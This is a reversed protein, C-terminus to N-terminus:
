RDLRAGRVDDWSRAWAEADALQLVRMLVPSPLRDLTLAASLGDLDLLGAAALRGELLHARLASRGQHYVAAAFGDLGGKTSRRRVREPLLHGLAQRAVARNEGGDVWMWAPIRLCLEVLPQSLLPAIVPAVGAHEYRDLFGQAIIFSRVHERKGPLVRRGVVSWPHDPASLGRRALFLDQRAWLPQRRRLAKKFSLRAATWATCGHVRSIDMIVKFATPGPGFAWLADAGPGATNLACLINDGGLGSFFATAGIARAKAALIAEVPQLYGYSSPWAFRGPRARTLDAAPGALQEDLALGAAGATLRAYDREDGDAAATVINIAELGSTKAMCLAILSSDLGGSLELLPRHYVSGWAWVVRELHRRLRDRAEGLDSIAVGPEAFSWPSWLQTAESKGPGRSLRAGPPVEQVDALGTRKGRVQPFALARSVETWDIAPKALGADVVLSLNSTLIEVDHSGDVYLPVGGSPDRVIDCRGSQPDHLVAVYAGWYDRILAQGRTAVIRAVESAAVGRVRESARITDFLVGVVVGNVGMTTVQPESPACMVAVGDALFAPALTSLALIAAQAADKGAPSWRLIVLDVM